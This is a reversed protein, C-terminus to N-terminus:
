RRGRREPLRGVRPQGTEDLRFLAQAQNYRMGREHAAERRPSGTNRRRRRRAAIGPTTAPWSNPRRSERAISSAWRRAGSKVIAASHGSCADPRRHPAVPELGCRQRLEHDAGHLDASATIRRIVTELDDLVKRAQADDGDALALLARGYHDVVNSNDNTEQKKAPDNLIANLIRSDERAEELRGLCLLDRLRGNHSWAISHSIDRDRAAMLTADSCAMAEEFLGEVRKLNGLSSMSTEWNKREGCQTSIDM